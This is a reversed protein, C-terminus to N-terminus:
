SEEVMGKVHEPYDEYITLEADLLNDGIYDMAKENIGDALVELMINNQDAFKKIGDGHLIIALAQLESDSLADKLSEWGDLGDESEKDAPDSFINQDAAPITMPVPVSAIPEEKEEVMLSATTALAEQRIRSLSNFDVTVVTKTAEKYFETVARQVINEMFLGLKKLKGLTEPNIMDISASIKFKYNTVKRLVSEMQRMVYGIFQRGKETTIITSFTWENNRCIYIENYSLVVRRDPQKLWPYFLADKFPKWTTVKKTPRFLADDFPIGAAEFVKRIKELVFYFCDTILKSTEGTFFVSKRIDYKSINCFLDFSDETGTIKPYHTSLHHKEVFDKFTEPLDYYIHYDKLWRIIYKDIISDHKQFSAWFSLLKDLGDHPTNVGINNLLEYIYLFVYSL